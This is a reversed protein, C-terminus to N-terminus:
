QLSKGARILLEGLQQVKSQSAEAQNQVALTDEGLDILIRAIDTRDSTRVAQKLEGLDESLDFGQLQQEWAEIAMVADDVPITTIDRQLMSIVSDISIIQTQTDVM